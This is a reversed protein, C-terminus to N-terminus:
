IRKRSGSKGKEDRGGRKGGRSGSNDGSDDKPDKGGKRTKSKTQGSKKSKDDVEDAKKKLKSKDDEEDDKKKGKHHKEELKEDAKAEAKKPTIKKHQSKKSCGSMEQSEAFGVKGKSAAISTKGGTVDINKGFNGLPNKEFIMSQSKAQTQKM